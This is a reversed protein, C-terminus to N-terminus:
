ARPEGGGGSVALIRFPGSGTLLSAPAQRHRGSDREDKREGRQREPVDEREHGADGRPRHVKKQRGADDEADEIKREVADLAIVPALMIELVLQQAEVALVPADELQFFQGGHAGHDAADRVLAPSSQRSKTLRM